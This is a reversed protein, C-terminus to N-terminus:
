RGAALGDPLGGGCLAQFDAQQELAGVGLREALPDFPQTSPAAGAGVQGTVCELTLEAGRGFVERGDPGESGLVAEREDLLGERRVM